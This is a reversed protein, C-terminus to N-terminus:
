RRELRYGFGYVAGLSWRVTASLELNKRLRSVHTDLTRSTVVADPGWVAQQIQRRSLLRGVNRLFFVTLEFDKTSLALPQADRYIRRASFDIRVNGVELAAEPSEAKRRRGVSAVRALLEVHRYPKGVYDDAGQQLGHVIDEESIRSTVMVTPVSLRFKIRVNNLVEMGSMGPVEWDLLLVDFAEKALADVLAEGREYHYVQHGAGRLCHQLVLAQSSDDELMAIRM